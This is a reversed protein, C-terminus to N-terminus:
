IIYVCFVIFLKNHSLNLSHNDFLSFQSTDFHLGKSFLLHASNQDSYKNNKSTNDEEEIEAERSDLLTNEEDSLSYFCATPHREQQTYAGKHELASTNKLLSYIFTNTNHSHALLQGSAGLSIIWLLLLYKKLGKIM